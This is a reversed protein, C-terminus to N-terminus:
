DSGNLKIYAGRCGYIGRLGVMEAMWFLRSTFLPQIMSCSEMLAIFLVGLFRHGLANQPLM